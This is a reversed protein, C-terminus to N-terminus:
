MSRVKCRTTTPHGQCSHECKCWPLGGGRDRPVPPRRLEGYEGMQKLAKLLTRLTLM